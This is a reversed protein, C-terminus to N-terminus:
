IESFPLPSKVSREYKGRIKLDYALLVYLKEYYKEGLGCAGRAQPKQKVRM